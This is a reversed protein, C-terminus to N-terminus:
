LVGILMFFGIWACLGAFIGPLIWWSMRMM